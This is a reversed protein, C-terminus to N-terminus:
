LVAMAPLHEVDNVARGNVALGTEIETIPDPGREFHVTTSADPRYNLFGYPEPGGNFSYRVDGPICLVTGPGCERKGLFIKGKLIYILEDQSHLHQGPSGGPKSDIEFFTVRCTECTSDAFWKAEVGPFGSVYWGKPGVLHAVHDSERPPGYLVHRAPDAAWTGFHAIKTASVARARLPVGDELVIAGGEPITRGDVELAGSLVYLSEERHGSNWSMTGGPQLEATVLWIAYERPSLLKSWALGEVRCDVPYTKQPEVEVERLIHLKAM